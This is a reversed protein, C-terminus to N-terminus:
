NYKFHLDGAKMGSTPPDGAGYTIRPLADVRGDVYDKRSLHTPQTPAVGSIPGTVTGGALSLYLANHNHTTLRDDISKVTTDIAAALETLDTPIDTAEGYEPTPWGYNQTAGM